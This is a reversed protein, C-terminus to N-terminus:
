FLQRLDPLTLPATTNRGVQRMGAYDMPLLSTMTRDIWFNPISAASTSSPVMSLKDRTPGAINRSCTKEGIRRLQMEAKPYWDGYGQLGHM